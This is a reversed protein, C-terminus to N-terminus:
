WYLWLLLLIINNMSLIQYCWLQHIIMMYYICWTDYIYLLIYIYIWGGGHGDGGGGATGGSQASPYALSPDCLGPDGGARWLSRWEGATLRLAPLRGWFIAPFYAPCICTHDNKTKPITTPHNKSAHQHHKSTKQHSNPKLLTSIPSTSGKLVSSKSNSWEPDKFFLPSFGHFVLRELDLWTAFFFGQKWAEPLEPPGVQLHKPLSHWIHWLYRPDPIIKGSIRSKLGASIWFEGFGALVWKGSWVDPDKTFQYWSTSLIPGGGDTSRCRHAVISGAATRWIHYIPQIPKASWRM